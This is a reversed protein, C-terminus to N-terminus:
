KKILKSFEKLFKEAIKKPALIKTKNKCLQSMEIRFKKDYKLHVIISIAEDVNKFRLKSPIFEKFWDFDPAVCPIGQAMADVCSMSWPCGKRYPALCCLANEM